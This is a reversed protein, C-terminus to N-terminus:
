LSGHLLFGCRQDEPLGIHKGGPSHVGMFDGGYWAIHKFNWWEYHIEWFKAFSQEKEVNSPIKGTAIAKAIVHDPVKYIPFFNLWFYMRGPIWLDGVSYGYVCRKDQEEWYQFYDRSNIPAATYCPKGTSKNKKFDQAAECFLATNVLSHFGM